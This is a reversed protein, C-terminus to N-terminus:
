DSRKSHDFDALILLKAVDQLKQIEFIGEHAITSERFEGSRNLWCAFFGFNFAGAVDWQNSSVFLVQNPHCDLDDCVMRYVRRDPKYTEVENVSYIRNLFDSLDNEIVGAHLMDPTGNSLIGVYPIELERLKQLGPLVDGFTTPHMYLPSLQDILSDDAEYKRCGDSIAIRTLQDFPIFSEMLGHQWTYALQKERTYSLIYKVGPHDIHDLLSQDLNFLTGFADLICAKIKM